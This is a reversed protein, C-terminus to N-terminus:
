LKGPLATNKCRSDGRTHSRASFWRSPLSPPLRPLVSTPFCGGLGVGSGAPGEGRSGSGEAGSSSGPSAQVQLSASGRCCRFPPPGLLLVWAMPSGGGTGRLGGSLRSLRYCNLLASTLDTLKNAWHVVAVYHSVNMINWWQPFVALFPGHTFYNRVSVRLQFFLWQNSRLFLESCLM